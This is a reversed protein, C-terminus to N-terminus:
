IYYVYNQINGKGNRVTVMYGFVKQFSLIILLISVIKDFNNGKTGEERWGHKERRTCIRTINIMHDSFRPVHMDESATTSCAKPPHLCCFHGQYSGCVLGGRSKFLPREQDITDKPENRSQTLAWGFLATGAHIKGEKLNVSCAFM